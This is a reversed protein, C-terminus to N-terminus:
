SRIGNKKRRQWYRRESPAPEFSGKSQSGTQASVFGFGLFVAEDKKAEFHWRYKQFHEL